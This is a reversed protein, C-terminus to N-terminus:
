LLHRTAEPVHELSIALGPSSGDRCGCRNSTLSQHELSERSKDRQQSIKLTRTETLSLMGLNSFACTLLIREIQPAFDTYRADGAMATNYIGLDRHLSEAFGLTEKESFPWTLNKFKRQFSSDSQRKALKDRVDRLMNCYENSDKISLLCSGDDGFIEEQHTEKTVTGIQSLATKLKELESLFRRASFPADRVGNIYKYSIGFVEITLSVLGAIGSAIGLAEAM